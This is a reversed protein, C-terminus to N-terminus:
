RSLKETRFRTLLLSSGRFIFFGVPKGATYPVELERLQM